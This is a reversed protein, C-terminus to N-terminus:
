VGTFLSLKQWACPAAFFSRLSFNLHLCPAQRLMGTTLYRDFSAETPVERAIPGTIFKIKTMFCIASQARLRAVM